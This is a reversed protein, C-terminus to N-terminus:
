QKRNYHQLAPKILLMCTDAISGTRILEYRYPKSDWKRKSSALSDAFEPATCIFRGVGDEPVTKECELNSIDKKEKNNSNANYSAVDCVECRIVIKGKPDVIVLDNADKEDSTSPHCEQILCGGGKLHMAFWYIADILREVTAAINIIEGLKEESKGILEPVEGVNLKVFARKVSTGWNSSEFDSSYITEKARSVLYNQVARLRKLADNFTANKLPEVVHPM